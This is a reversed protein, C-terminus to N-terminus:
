RTVQRVVGIAAVTALSAWATAEAAVAVPHQQGIWRRIAKM